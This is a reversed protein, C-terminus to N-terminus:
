EMISSIVVSSARLNDVTTGAMSQNIDRPFYADDPNDMLEM